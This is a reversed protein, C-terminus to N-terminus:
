EGPQTAREDRLFLVALAAAVALAGYTRFANSYSAQADFVAGAFMTGLAGMFLLFMIAGYIEALHRSGFCHDIILPYVVDRSAAAVGFGVVIATGYAPSPLALLACTFVAFVACQLIMARRHGIADALVGFGIKAFIGALNLMGLAASAEARDVGADVLSIVLHDLVGVFVFFFAALAFCLIWFSRTLAAVSLPLDRDSGVLVAGNGGDSAGELAVGRRERLVFLAFPLMLLAGVAGLQFLAARWGQEQAWVPFLQAIGYGAINSGAYVIGLAVGRYRQVWQSVVAGVVVDGLGVAVIGQLAAGVAFHWFTTLESLLTTCAFLAFVSGVLIPRAGIRWLAWGVIPSAIAMMGMQPFRVSSFMTRTWGLEETIDKQIHGYAYGYGLGFQCVLGGLVILAIRVNAASLM